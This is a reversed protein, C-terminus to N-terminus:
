IREINVDRGECITCSVLEPKDFVSKLDRTFLEHAATPDRNFGGSTKPADTFPLSGDQDCAVFAGAM